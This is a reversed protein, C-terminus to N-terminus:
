DLKAAGGELKNQELRVEFGCGIWSLPAEETERDKQEFNGGNISDLIETRRM